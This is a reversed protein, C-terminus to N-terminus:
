VIVDSDWGLSTIDSILTADSTSDLDIKFEICEAYIDGSTNVSLSYSKNYNDVGILISNNGMNLASDYNNNHDVVSLLIGTQTQAISSAVNNSNVPAISTLGKNFYLNENSYTQPNAAQSTAGILYLKSTSNTSGATNKTDTTVYGADNTFASVNTPVTPIDSTLAVTGSNNPLTLTKTTSIVDSPELLVAGTSASHLALVGQKNGSSGANTNNGLTLQAKGISSTTGTNAWYEIGTKDYYKTEANSTDTGLTPYYTGDLSSTINSTSVKEDTNVVVTSKSLFYYYSGTYVFTLTENADWTLKNSSSTVANNYYIAKAGTSNVNLTLADATNATTFTINVVAGKTLVYNAITSTKAATSATTSSTGYWVNAGRPQEVSGASVSYMYRFYAGDYMFYITTNASWKLVNTTSNPTSAGIYIYRGTSEGNVNLTPTAATNATTFLVGLINGKVFKFGTATVAKEATSATTSCTGYYTNNHVSSSVSSWGDAESIYVTKTYVQSSGVAICQYFSFIPNDIDYDEFNQLVYIDKSTKSSYGHPDYPQVCIVTDNTQYAVEVEAYTSVGYEVVGVTGDVSLNYTDGGYTFKNITYESM